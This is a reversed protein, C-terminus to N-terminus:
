DRRRKYRLYGAFGLYALGYVGAEEAGQLPATASGPPKCGCGPGVGALQEATSFASDMNFFQSLLTKIKDHNDTEVVGADTPNLREVALTSPMGPAAVPRNPTVYFVTGDALQIRYPAQGATLNGNCVMTAQATRVNSVDPLSPNYDLIPDVTMQDPSMTTYFRTVYPIRGFADYATKLPQQFTADLDQHLQLSASASVPTANGFNSLAMPWSSYSSDALDRTLIAQLQVGVPYRQNVIERNIDGETTLTDFAAPNYTPQLASRLLQSKGAFDTVFARGGAENVAQTVLSNYNSGGQFWNILAENLKVHKYNTPIARGQALVYATIPMNPQAAISTLILPICPETSKYSLVIPALDGTDRDQRLKLAVFYNDAKVYTKTVEDFRPPITYHNATLWDTLAKVTDAKLIVSDYPGVLQAAVVTVGSDAKPSAINGVSSATPMFGGPFFGGASKCTGETPNFQLRYSVATNSELRTFVEDSSVSLSPSAPIPVVWSFDKAQGSYKIQVYTTMRNQDIAFLIKEGAQNIPITGCFLGGCAIAPGAAVAVFGAAMLPVWALQNRM